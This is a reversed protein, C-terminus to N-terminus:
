ALKVAWCTDLLNSSLPHYAAGAAQQGSAPAALDGPKHEKMEAMGETLAAPEATSDRTM